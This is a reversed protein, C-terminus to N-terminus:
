WLDTDSPHKGDRRSGATPGSWLTCIVRGGTGDGRLPLKVILPAASCTSTRVKRGRVRIEREFLFPFFLHDSSVTSDHQCSGRTAFFKILKLLLFAEHM